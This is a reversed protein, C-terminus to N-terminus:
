VSPFGISNKKVKRVKKAQCEPCYKPWHKANSPFTFSKGCRRCKRTIPEVPRHKARCEQCYDPWHQVNEPLTFTKGCEKCTITVFGRREAQDKATLRKTAPRKGDRDFLLKKVWEFMTDDRGTKWCVILIQILAPEKQAPKNKIFLM